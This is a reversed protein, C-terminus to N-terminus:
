LQDLITELGIGRSGKILIIASKLDITKLTNQLEDKTAFVNEQNPFAKKFYNGVFYSHTFNQKMVTEYLKIHEKDTDDGLEFMDGLITVKYTDKLDTFNNIAASMSTPNANYADLLINLGNKEIIQSRNNNSVYNCIAEIAKSSEIKFHKALALAALINEFNYAGILQTQNNKKGEYDFSIFPTLQNITGYTYATADTQSYIFTNKFQNIINMLAESSGNVFITGKNANLFQFLETKGKLVGEIGGFGELHAKGINTILGHTPAAIASLFAIEGVHNAGMEIVAIETDLPMALLTLPVGIHNNLNGATFHTKYKTKLVTSLLEKTTTKGNSGTIGIFPIDFQNRHHNALDQLAKLCDEVLYTNPFDAFELEDVVAFSAGKEIAQQAFQNGNYNGGKLAFFLNGDSVKRTDTCIGSSKKFVEYLASISTYTSM